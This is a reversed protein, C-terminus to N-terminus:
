QLLLCERVTRFEHNINVGFHVNLSQFTCREFHAVREHIKEAMSTSCAYTGYPLHLRFRRLGTALGWWWRERDIVHRFGNARHLLKNPRPINTSRVRSTFVCMRRSEITRNRVQSM